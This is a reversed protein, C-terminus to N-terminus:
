SFAWRPPLPWHRDIAGHPRPSARHSGPRPRARSGTTGIGNRTSVASSVFPRRGRRRKPEWTGFTRATLRGQALARATSSSWHHQPSLFAVVHSTSPLREFPRQENHHDHHG